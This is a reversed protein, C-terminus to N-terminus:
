ASVARKLRIANLWAISLMEEWQRPPTSENTAIVQDLSVISKCYRALQSAFLDIAADTLSNAHYCVTWIGFPLPRLRWIQQPVWTCGFKHVPRFYYGDSVVRLDNEKLIQLTTLDFSHGPAIWAKPTIGHQRFVELAEGIKRRQIEPRLGAFESFSNLGLMGSASSEMTHQHGHIAIAWGLAQWKKVREWFDSRPQDVVLLPDRNDPIVGLLPKISHETLVAELREWASWDMTPCIDDFRLLFKASM